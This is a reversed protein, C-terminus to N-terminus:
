IEVGHEEAFRKLGARMSGEGSALNTELWRELAKADLSLVMSKVPGVSAPAMSISRFGLGILAMAELPRGAMEGCLSFPRNHRKAAAAISAFARLPPASLLDYRTAVRTNNRDAAFFYQLLDNSGVSIFDVRPLLADLEFLLSPVEIMAGLLVRAPGALGRRQLLEAEREVVARAVDVEAVATVMPLLLRLEGGAAARLLARVQTRLLGPRDLSLRIARWGLAPNEEAPQRLYPLVKDGGVDLTRFVVPKGSSGEIIARYMQVQREMRPLTASIMFQLETRFLGIGDAGAEELHPVDMELGANICTEVRQGDKTVAPTDRLARYKRHRRARFRAREAYAGIVGSSPRIHVEGSEADVVIPDGVEVREIVGRADGVAAIGLARAVIAVHSQRGSHELVLGRLNQREYDLLDAPGMSRAVLVANRPLKGSAHGRPSGILIRLLRASLADLDQLRERWYTETHRLMRARTDNQVRDM